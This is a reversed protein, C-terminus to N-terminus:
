VFLEVILKCLLNIFLILTLLIVSTCVLGVHGSPHLSGLFFVLDAGLGLLVALLLNQGVLVEQPLLHTSTWVVISATGKRAALAELGVCVNLVPFLVGQTSHHIGLLSLHVPGQQM